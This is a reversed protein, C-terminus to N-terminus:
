AATARRAATRRYEGTFREQFRAHRTPRMSSGGRVDGRPRSWNWITTGFDGDDAAAGLTAGDGRRLHARQPRDTARATREARHGAGRVEGDVEAGEHGRMSGSLDSGQWDETARLVKAGGEGDRRRGEDRRASCRGVDDSEERASLADGGRGDPRGRRGGGQPLHGEGGLTPLVGATLCSEARRRVAM